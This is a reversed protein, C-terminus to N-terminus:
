SSGKWLKVCACTYQWPDKKRKQLFLIVLYTVSSSAKLFIKIKYGCIDFKILICHFLVFMETDMLTNLNWYGLKAIFFLFKLHNDKNSSIMKFFSHISFFSFNSWACEHVKVSWSWWYVSIIHSFKILAFFFWIQM